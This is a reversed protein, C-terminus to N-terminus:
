MWEKKQTWWFKINNVVSMPDAMAKEALQKAGPVFILIM